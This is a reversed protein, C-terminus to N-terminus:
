GVDGFRVPLSGFSMLSHSTAFHLPPPYKTRVQLLEMSRYRSALLLVGPPPPSDIECRVEEQQFRLAVTVIAGPVIALLLLTLWSQYIMAQMAPDMRDDAGRISLVPGPDQTRWWDAV